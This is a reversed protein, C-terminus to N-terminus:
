KERGSLSADNRPLEQVGIGAIKLTAMNKVVFLPAFKPNGLYSILTNKFRQRLGALVDETEREDVFHRVKEQTFVLRDDHTTVLDHYAQEGHDLPSLYEPLVPVELKALLTVLWRDGTMRRSQDWLELILGNPLIIKEILRESM